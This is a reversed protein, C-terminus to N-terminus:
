VCEAELHDTLREAATEDEEGTSVHGLPGRGCFIPWEAGFLKNPMFFLAV